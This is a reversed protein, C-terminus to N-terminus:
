LTNEKSFYLPYWSESHLSTGLFELPSVSAIPLVPM